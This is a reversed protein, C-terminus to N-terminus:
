WNSPIGLLHEIREVDHLATELSEALGTRNQRLAADVVVRAWATDTWVRTMCMRSVMSISPRIDLPWVAVADGPYV